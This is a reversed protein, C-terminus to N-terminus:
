NRENGASSIYLKFDAIQSVVYKFGVIFYVNLYFRVCM